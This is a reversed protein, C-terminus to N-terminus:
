FKYCDRTSLWRTKFNLAHQKVIGSTDADIAKSCDVQLYTFNAGWYESDESYGVKLVVCKLLTNEIYESGDDWSKVAEYVCSLEQGQKITPNAPVIANPDYFKQAHAVSLLMNLLVFSIKM